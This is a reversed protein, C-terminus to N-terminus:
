SLLSKLYTRIFSPELPTGSLGIYGLCPRIKLTLLRGYPPIHKKSFCKNLELKRSQQVNM